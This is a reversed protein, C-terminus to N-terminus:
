KKTTEQGLLSKMDTIASELMGIRGTLQVQSEGMATLTSSMQDLKKRLEDLRPDAADAPTTAPASAPSVPASSPLGAATAPSPKSPPSFVLDGVKPAGQPPPSSPKATDDFVPEAILSGRMTLALMDETPAPRPEAPPPAAPSAPAAFIEPYSSAEKWEAGQGGGAAEPCVLSSGSFEPRATLERAEFPGQVENNTYVWYRM